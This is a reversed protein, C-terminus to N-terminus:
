VAEGRVEAEDDMDWQRVVQRLADKLSDTLSLHVYTTVNAGRPDIALTFVTGSPGIIVEVEDAAETILQVSAGLM